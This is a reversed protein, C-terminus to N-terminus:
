ARADCEEYDVRGVRGAAGLRLLNRTDYVVVAAIALECAATALLPLEVPATARSLLLCPLFAVGACIPVAVALHRLLGCGGAVVSLVARLGAMVMWVGTASAMALGVHLRGGSLLPVITNRFAVLALASMGLMLALPIVSRYVTKRVWEHDGVAVAEAYAPWLPAAFAYSLALPIMMARQLVAFPAVASAGAIIALSVAPAANLASAGAQASFILLGSQLVTKSAGAEVFRLRPFLFPRRVTFELLWSAGMAGTQGGIVAAVFWPLGAHAYVAALTGFLTIVGAMIQWANAIFGEQYGMQVRQAVSIPMGACFLALLTLLAPKCEAVALPSHLRLATPWAVAQIACYGALFVTVALLSLVVSASAVARRAAEHDGRGYAASILNLLGNGIGLDAFSLLAVGTTITSLLGFREPGLFRVTVPMVVTLAVLSVVKALLSV